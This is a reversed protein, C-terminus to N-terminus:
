IVLILIEAHHDTRVLLVDHGRGLILCLSEVDSTSEDVPPANLALILVHLGTCGGAAGGEGIADTDHIGIVTTVEVGRSPTNGMVAKTLALAHARDTEVLVTIEVLTQPVPITDEFGIVGDHRVADLHRLM